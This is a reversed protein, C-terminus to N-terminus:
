KAAGKLSQNAAEIRELLSQPGDLDIIREIYFFNSRADTIAPLKNALRKREDVDPCFGEIAKMAAKLTCEYEAEYFAKLFAVGAQIQGAYDLDSLEARCDEITQPVLDLQIQKISLQQAANDDKGARRKLRRIEDPLTERLAEADALARKLKGHKSIAAKLPGSDFLEGVVAVAKSTSSTM